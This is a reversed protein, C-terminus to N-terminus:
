AECVPPQYNTWLVETRRLRSVHLSEEAGVTKTWKGNPLMDNMMASDYGSVAVMGKCSNLVEALELHDSDSMEHAYDRNKARTAHLYPPDCYFLTKHSDYLKIVDIAQRNEIQVKMFRRSIEPLAQISNNWAKVERPKTDKSNNWDGFGAKQVRQGWTGRVKVFFRRAREVDSVGSLSGYISLFYEERSYPTLALAEILEDRHDRLTRFFHVVDGYLDNYTEVPSPERNL